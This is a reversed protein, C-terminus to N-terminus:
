LEIEIVSGDNTMSKCLRPNFSTKGHIYTGGLKKIAEIQNTFLYKNFVLETETMTAIKEVPILLRM